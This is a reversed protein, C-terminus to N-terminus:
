RVPVASPMLQRGRLGELNVRIGAFQNIVLPTLAVIAALIPAVVEISLDFANNKPFLIQEALTSRATHTQLGNNGTGSDSNAAVAQTRIKADTVMGGGSPLKLVPAVFRTTSAFSLHLSAWNIIKETFGTGTSLGAASGVDMDCLVDVSITTCRFDQDVKNQDTMDTIPRGSQGATRNAFFALPSVMQAFNRVADPPFAVNGFMVTDYFIWPQADVFNHLAAQLAAPNGACKKVALQAEPALHSISGGRGGGRFSRARSRLNQLAPQSLATMEGAM